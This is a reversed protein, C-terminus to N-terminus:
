KFPHSFHDITVAIAGVYPNDQAVQFVLDEPTFPDPLVSPLKRLTADVASFRGLLRHEPFELFFDPKIRRMYLDEPARTVPHAIFHRLVIDAAFTATGVSPLFM